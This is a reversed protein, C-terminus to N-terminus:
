GFVEKAVERITSNLSLYQRTDWMFPKSPQGMTFAVESGDKNHYVRGRWGQPVPSFGWGTSRYVGDGSPHSHASGVPGTGFEVFIAYDCDTKVIYQAGNQIVDGKELHISNYLKGTQYAGYHLLQIKAYEVGKEALKRTFEDVKELLTDEYVEIDAIAQRISRETLDVKMVYRNGVWKGM